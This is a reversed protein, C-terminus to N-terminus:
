EIQSLELAEALDGRLAPLRNLCAKTRSVSFADMSSKLTEYYDNLAQINLEECARSIDDIFEYVDDVVFLESMLEARRSWENDILDILKHIEDPNSMKLEIETEEHKKMRIYEDFHFDFYKRFLFLLDKREFPKQLFDDFVNIDQLKESIDATSLIIPCKNYYISNRIERAIEEGNKGPMNLDIFIIDFQNHSIQEITQEYNTAEKVNINFNEIYDRLLARNLNFDDIILAFYNDKRSPIIFAPKANQRGNMAFDVDFFTIKFTSGKDEESELTITGNMKEVLKKTITLGLGTGIQGTNRELREKSFADFIINFNEKKIGMGTDEIIVTFNIKESDAFEFDFYVRIYGRYTFKIANSILNFIIQNFRFKDIIITQPIGKNYDYIFELGRSTCQEYYMDYIENITHHINTKSAMIKLKGAEINSLDLIDNIILLLTNSGSVINKLMKISNEDTTTKLLLDSYGKIINMPTRIDHSINAIFDSKVRTAKEAEELAEQLELRSADLMKQYKIIEEKLNSIEIDKKDRITINTDNTDM